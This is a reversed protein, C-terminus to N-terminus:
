PDGRVEGQGGMSRGQGGMSGGQGGMSGGQGGMSGGLGQCYNWGSREWRAAQTIKFNQPTEGAEHNSDGKNLM